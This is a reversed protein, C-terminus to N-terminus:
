RTAALTWVALISVVLSIIALLIALVDLFYKYRERRNREVEMAFREAEQTVRNHEQVVRNREQEARNREQEARDSEWSFRQIERRRDAYRSLTLYRHEQGDPSIGSAGDTGGYIYQKHVAYDYCDREDETNLPISVRNSAANNQTLQIVRKYVALMTKDTYAM